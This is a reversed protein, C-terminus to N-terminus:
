FELGAERSADALAKVRGHYRFGGRDFVVKKIGAAQAREAVLKGVRKAEEVKNLEKAQARIDADLTSAAALTHGRSDDIVQAFIHKSSRFVNLRPREPTGKLNHRERARWHRRQRLLAPKNKTTAAM